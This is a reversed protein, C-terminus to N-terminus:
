AAPELGLAERIQAVWSPPVYRDGREYASVAWQAVGAKQAVEWQALNKSVRALRAEM